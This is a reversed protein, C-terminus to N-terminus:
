KLGISDILNDSFCDGKAKVREGKGLVHDGIYRRDDLFSGWMILATSQTVMGWGSEIHGILGNFGSGGERGGLLGCGGM